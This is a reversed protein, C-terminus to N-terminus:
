VRCLFSLISITFRSTLILILLSNFYLSSIGESKRNWLEQEALAPSRGALSPAAFNSVPFKSDFDTEPRFRVLSTQETARSAHLSPAPCGAADCRAPPRRRRAPSLFSGRQRRWLARLPPPSAMSGSRPASPQLPHRAIPSPSPRHLMPSLRRHCDRTERLSCAVSRSPLGRAARTSHKGVKNGLRSTNLQKIPWFSFVQERTVHAVVLAMAQAARTSPRGM